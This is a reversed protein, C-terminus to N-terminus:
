ESYITSRSVSLDIIIVVNAASVAMFLRSLGVFYGSYVQFQNFLYRILSFVIASSYFQFAAEQWWFVDICQLPTKCPPCIDVEFILCMAGKSVVKKRPSGVDRKACPKYKKKTVQQPDM